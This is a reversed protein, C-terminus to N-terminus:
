ATLYKVVGISWLVFNENNLKITTISVGIYPLAVSRAAM